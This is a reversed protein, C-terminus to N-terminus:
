LASGSIDPVRLVCAVVSGAVLLSLDLCRVSRGLVGLRWSLARLLSFSASHRRRRTWRVFTKVRLGSVLLLVVVVDELLLHHGRIDGEDTVFHIAKARCIGQAVM